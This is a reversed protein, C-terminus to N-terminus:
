AGDFGGVVRAANEGLAAVAYGGELVFVSPYRWGGLREGLRAYDDPMLSFGSIPDGAATDLGLSIVLADPQFAKIRAEAQDFAAFWAARSSGAALPLNLNFGAGPGVGSESAHGLYFPYETLPDGHISAFLVDARDYFLSQTGNGHHYDLDLIAVRQCGGDRLAVAAVAANNIFCYGGMFDWGAHHGPPRSASFAAPAGDRVAAVASLAADAGQKAAAWMGASIPTGNDMSYLGLAAIFNQPAIDSRLSRVPWVSPFPQRKANEPDLALWRPWAGALFDLYRPAHVRPLIAAADHTPARLTHGCRRLADVVIEARAPTEFCPVREGRFFEFEPAHAAHLPATYTIM